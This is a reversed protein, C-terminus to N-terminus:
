MRTMRWTGDSEFRPCSVNGTVLDDGSKPELATFQCSMLTFSIKGDSVELTELGGSGGYDEAHGCSQCGGRYSYSGRTTTGSRAFSLVGGGGCGVPVPEIPCTDPNTASFSLEWEGWLARVEPEAPAPAEGGCGLALLLGTCMLLAGLLSRTLRGSM